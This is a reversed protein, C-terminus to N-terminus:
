LAAPQLDPEVWSRKAEASWVRERSYFQYLWEISCIEELRKLEAHSELCSRKGEAAIKRLFMTTVTENYGDPNGRAQNYANIQQRM